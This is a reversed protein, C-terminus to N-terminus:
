SCTTNVYNGAVATLVFICSRTSAGGRSMIGFARGCSNYVATGPVTTSM